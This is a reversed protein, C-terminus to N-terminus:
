MLGKLVYIFSRNQRIYVDDYLKLNVSSLGNINQQTSLLLKGQKKLDLVYAYKDARKEWKEGYTQRMFSWIKTIMYNAFEKRSSTYLTKSKYQTKLIYQLKWDISKLDKVVYDYKIGKVKPTTIKSFYFLNHDMRSIVKQLDSKKMTTFLQIHLHFNKQMLKMRTEETMQASKSPPNKNLGVEIASYYAVEYNHYHKINNLKDFFNKRLAITADLTNRSPSLTIMFTNLHGSEAWLAFYKGLQRKRNKYINQIQSETLLNYYSQM